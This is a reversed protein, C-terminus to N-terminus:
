ILITKEGRDRLKGNESQLPAHMLLGTLNILVQDFLLPAENAGLLTVLNIKTKTTLSSM